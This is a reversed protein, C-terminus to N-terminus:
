ELLIIGVQAFSKEKPISFNKKFRRVTSVIDIGMGEMAPRKKEPHICQMGDLVHCRSCADCPGPVLAFAKHYNAKALEKEMEVLAEKFKKQEEPAGEKGFILIAKRYEKMLRRTQEPSFTHPPCCYNSGFRDCGFKCKAEVWDFVDIKSTYISLIEDIGFKKGVSLAIEVEGM